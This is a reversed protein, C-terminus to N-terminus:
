SIQKKAKGALFFGLLVVTFLKLATKLPKAMGNGGQKCRIMWIKKNLFQNINLSQIFLIIDIDIYYLNM